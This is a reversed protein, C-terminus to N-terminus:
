HIEVQKAVVHSCTKVNSALGLAGAHSELPLFSKNKLIDPSVGYKQLETAILWSSDEM